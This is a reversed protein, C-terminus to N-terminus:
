PPAKLLKNILEASIHNQLIVEVKNIGSVQAAKKKIEKGIYLAFIDPCFPVTLHYKIRVMDGEVKVEDVLGREVISFGFEPDKVEKLRELVEKEKLSVEKGAM